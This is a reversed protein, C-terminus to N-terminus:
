HDNLRAEADERTVISISLKKIIHSDSQEQEDHESFDTSVTYRTDILFSEKVRYAILNNYEYLLELLDNNNSMESQIDSACDSHEEIEPLDIATPIYFKNQKCLYHPMKDFIPEKEIAQILGAFKRIDAKQISNFRESPKMLQCLHKLENAPTIRIHEYLKRAREYNSDSMGPLFQELRDELHAQLRFKLEIAYYDADNYPNNNIIEDLISQGTIRNSYAASRESDGDVQIKKHIEIAKSSIKESLLCYNLNLLRESLEIARSTCINTIVSKTLREIDALSCHKDDGYSYFRVIEGNNDEYDSTDSITLSIHFYRASGKIRDLEIKASKELAEKYNSRYKGIKAKVQHASSLVGSKYIAFDDTSDLQLEFDVDGQYILKLCHYLAIKGQYVFGSWSSVASDPYKEEENM